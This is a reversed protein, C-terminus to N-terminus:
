EATELKKGIHIGGSAIMELAKVLAPGDCKTKMVMRLDKASVGNRIPLGDSLCIIKGTGIGEEVFHATSYIEREGADIMKQVADFGLYKPKKGKDLIELNGPHVSVIMDKYEEIFTKPDASWEIIDIKEGGLESMVTSVRVGRQGVMSGVPDIHSDDSFTALKTRSGAERAVAKIQM